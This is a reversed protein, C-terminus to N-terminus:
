ESLPDVHVKQFLINSIIWLKISPLNFILVVVDVFLFSKKSFPPCAFCFLFKM